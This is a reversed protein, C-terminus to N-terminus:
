EKVRTFTETIDEKTLKIVDDSVFEVERYNQEEPNVETVFNLRNGEASWTGGYSIDLIKVTTVMTGGELFEWEAPIKDGNKNVILGSWKGILRKDLPLNNSGAGGCGVLVFSAIVLFLIVKKMSGEQTLPKTELMVCPLKFRTQFSYFLGVGNHPKDIADVLRRRRLNSLPNNKGEHNRPKANLRNLKTTVTSPRLEGSSRTGPWSTWGTM